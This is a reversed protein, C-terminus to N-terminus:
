EISSSAMLRKLWAIATNYDALAEVERYRYDLLQRSIDLIGSLETGDSAYSKLMIAYTKETIDAQKRYLAVRRGADRYKQIAEYYQTQLANATSQWQQDNAKQLWETEQQMAKYKKRYIPLTISVMPMLMDNGNMPSTSMASKNILSYDLGLGIMPYGMRKVMKQKADISQQEYRLMGLMPNGALMSDSVVPLAVNLMQANLSDPLAVPTLPSRNLLANFRALTTNQQDRLDEIDNELNGIEIQIRYVDTLGTQGASSPMSGGPMPNGSQGPSSQQLGQSSSGMSQMGDNSPSATRPSANQMSGSSSGGTGSTRFRVLSLRELTKLIALNDESVAVDQKLRMLEYWNRQVDLYAELRADRFSEFKAKAMLSMEDRANKLVGFWPFMQMLKIDAVQKGSIIEMPKLFMGLTLEPDPLSGAQPVKQLAAQYESFRQLVLPNNKAALEMYTVLSDNPASQAVVPSLHLLLIIWLGLGALNRLNMIASLRSCPFLNRKVQRSGAIKMRNFPIYLLNM